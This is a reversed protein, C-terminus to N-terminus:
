YCIKKEQKRHIHNSIKLTMVGHRYQLIKLSLQSIIQVKRTIQTTYHENTQMDQFRYQIKNAISLPFTILLKNTNM